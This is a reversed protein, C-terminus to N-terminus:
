EPDEPTAPRVTVDELVICEGDDVFPLEKETTLWTDYGEWEGIEVVEDFWEESIKEQLGGTSGAFDPSIRWARTVSEFSSTTRVISFSDPTSASLEDSTIPYLATGFEDFGNEIEVPIEDADPTIIVREKGIITRDIHFFSPAMNGSIESPKWTDKFQITGKLHAGRSSAHIPVDNTPDEIYDEYVITGEMHKFRRFTGVPPAFYSGSSLGGQGRFQKFDAYGSNGRRLRLEIAWRGNKFPSSPKPFDDLASKPSVNTEESDKVVVSSVILRLDPVMPLDTYRLTGRWFQGQRTLTESHSTFESVTGGGEAPQRIEEQWTVTYPGKEGGVCFRWYARDTAGFVQMTTQFKYGFKDWSPDNLEMKGATDLPAFLEETLSLSLDFKRIDTARPSQTFYVFLTKFAVEQM